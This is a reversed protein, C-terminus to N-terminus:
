KILSYLKKAFYNSCQGFSNSTRGCAVCTRHEMNENQEPLCVLAVNETLQVATELFLLAIDNYLAGAYYEEHIIVHHVMREQHTLDPDDSPHSDWDGARIMLGTKRPLVNVLDYLVTVQVLYYM